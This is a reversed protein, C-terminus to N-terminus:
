ELFSDPPTPGWTNLTKTLRDSPEWGIPPTAADNIHAMDAFLEFRLGSSPDCVNVFLSRGPRHRGPGYEVKYGQSDLQDMLPQYAHWGAVEFGLHHVSGEAGPRLAVAHHETGTRMWYLNTGIYESLRLNLTETFFTATESPVPSKLNVHGMRRPRLADPAPAPVGLSSAAEFSVVLGGPEQIRVATDTERRAGLVTALEDLDAGDPSAFVVREVGLREGAVLEVAGQGGALGYEGDCSLLLRGDQEIVALSLGASAFEATAQPDPVRVVIRELQGFPEPTSASTSSTSTTM